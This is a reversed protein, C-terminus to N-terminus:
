ILFICLCIGFLVGLSSYLKCLKEKEEKANQIITEFRKLYFLTREYESTKDKQGFGTMFEKLFIIDEAKLHEENIEATQLIIEDNFCKTFLAKRETKEIKIYESIERMGDGFLKLKTYRRGVSYAKAFGYLTPVFFSILLGLIKFLLM